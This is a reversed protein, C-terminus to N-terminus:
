ILDMFWAQPRWLQKPELEEQSKTFKKTLTNQNGCHTPNSHSSRKSCRRSDLEIFIQGADARVKTYRELSVVRYISISLKM